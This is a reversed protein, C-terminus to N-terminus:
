APPKTKRKECLIPIGAAGSHYEYARAKAVLRILAGDQIMQPYMMGPQPCGLSGDSWSMKKFGVLSIEASPVSLRKALDKRAADVLKKSAADSPDAIPTEKADAQQAAPAAEEPASGGGHVHQAALLLAILIADLM